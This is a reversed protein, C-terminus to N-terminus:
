WSINVSSALEIDRSLFLYWQTNVSSWLWYIYSKNYVHIMNCILSTVTEFQMQCTINCYDAIALRYICMVNRFLKFCIEINKFRRAHTYKHSFTSVKEYRLKEFVILIIPLVLYKRRHINESICGFINMVSFCLACDIDATLIWLYQGCISCESQSLHKMYIIIHNLVSNISIQCQVHHDAHISTNYIYFHSSLDVYSVLIM